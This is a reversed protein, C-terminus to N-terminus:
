DGVYVGRADLYHSDVYCDHNRDAVYREHEEEDLQDQYVDSAYAFKLNLAKAGQEVDKFGYWYAADAKTCFIEKPEKPAYWYRDDGSERDLGISQGCCACYLDTM